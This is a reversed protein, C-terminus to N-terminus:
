DVRNTTPNTSHYIYTLAQSPCAQVCKKCGKCLEPQDIRAYKHLGFLVNIKGIVNNPCVEICDWCAQCLQHDLRIFKTQDPHQKHHRTRSHSDM